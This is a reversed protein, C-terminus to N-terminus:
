QERKMTSNPPPNSNNNLLLRMCKMKNGESTGASLEIARGDEEDVGLDRM